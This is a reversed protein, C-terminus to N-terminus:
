RRGITAEYIPALLEVGAKQSHFREAHASGVTAWHDRVTPELMAEVAERITGNNATLFPIEGFRREYEALVPDPAGCIVPIGMGWAEVANGGYGFATQDFLVDCTGKIPLCDRWAMGEILVVDVPLNECAALLLETAKLGRNTPAHGICLRKGNRPKRFTALWDLNDIQPMWTTEPKLLWLDLTSVLVTAGEVLHMNADPAERFGTGHFTVVTPKRKGVRPIHDHTHVVDAANWNRVITDWHWPSHEPFQLYSPAGRYSHYEWDPRYRNFAVATRYSVGGIDDYPLYNVVKV